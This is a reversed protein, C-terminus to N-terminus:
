CLERAHPLEATGSICHAGARTGRLRQVHHQLVAHRVVLVAQGHPAAEEEVVLVHPTPAPKCSPSPPPIASAGLLLHHCAVKLSRLPM